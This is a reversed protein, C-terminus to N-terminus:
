FPVVPAAAPQQGQTRPLTQADAPSAAPAIESQAEIYDVRARVRKIEANVSAATEMQGEVTLKKQLDLLKKVHKETAGVVSEAHARKIDERMNFFKKQLEMLENPQLVINRQMITRDAEFRSIEDRVSEWGGYDGARQFQDMLENLGTVYKEPWESVKAAAGREVEALEREFEGRMNAVAQIRNEVTGALLMQPQTEMDTSGSVTSALAAEAALQQPTGSVRRIEANVAAAIDMKGDQTYQKQLDKLENVYKKCLTVVKRSHLLRQDALMQRYKNKLVTLESIDASGQEGIQRMDDFRKREEQVVAWGEFDGATRRREMLLDLERVYEGPWARMFIAQESEIESAQRAYEQQKQALEGPKKVNESLGSEDSPAPNFRNALDAGNLWFDAYRQLPKALLSQEYM